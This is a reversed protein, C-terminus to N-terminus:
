PLITKSFATFLDCRRALAINLKIITINNPPRLNIHLNTNSCVFKNRLAILVPSPLLVVMIQSPFRTFWPNKLISLLISGQHVVPFMNNNKAQNQKILLYM